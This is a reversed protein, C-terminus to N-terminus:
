GTELENLLASLHVVGRPAPGPLEICPEGFARHGALGHYDSGGTIFLGHHSALAKYYRQQKPSHLPHIAEIADIGATIAETISEDDFVPFFGGAGPHALSVLAGISHAAEVCRSLPPWTTKPMLDEPVLPLVKTRYTKPGDIFDARMLVRVLPSGFAGGREVEADYSERSVPLGLKRLHDIMPVVSQRQASFVEEVLFRRMAPQDIQDSYALMHVLRGDLSAGIEVGPVLAVGFRESAERGAPIADVGDHDTIAIADLGRKLALEFACEVTLESDNSFVTHLHLDAVM